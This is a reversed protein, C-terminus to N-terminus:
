HLWIPAVGILMTSRGGLTHHPDPSRIQDFSRADLQTGIASLKESLDVSCPFIAL